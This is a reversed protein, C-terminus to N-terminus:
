FLPEGNDISTRLMAHPLFLRYSAKFILPSLLADNEEKKPALTSYFISFWDFRKFSHVFPNCIPYNAVILLQPVSYFIFTLTYFVKRLEILKHPAVCIISHNPYHQTKLPHVYLLCVYCELKM